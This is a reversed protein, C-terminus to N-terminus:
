EEEDKATRLFDLISQTCREDALLDRIKFRKKGRGTARRVEAWPPEGGRGGNNATKQVTPETDTNQVSVVRV